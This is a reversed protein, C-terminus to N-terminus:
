RVLDNMFYVFYDVLCESCIYHDVTVPTQPTQVIKHCMTETHVNPTMYSWVRKRHKYMVLDSMLDCVFHM